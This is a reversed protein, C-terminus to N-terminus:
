APQPASASRREAVVSSDSASQEGPVARGVEPASASASPEAPPTAGGPASASALPLWGRQEFWPLEEKRARRTKGNKEVIINKPSPHRTDPTM